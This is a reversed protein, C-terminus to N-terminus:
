KDLRRKRAAKAAKRGKEQWKKSQILTTVSVGRFLRNRYFPDMYTRNDESSKVAEQVEDRFMLELQQVDEKSKNPPRRKIRRNFEKMFVARLEDDEWELWSPIDSKRM